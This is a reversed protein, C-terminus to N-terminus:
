FSPTLISETGNSGTNNVKNFTNSSVKTMCIGSGPSIVAMANSEVFLRRQKHLRLSMTCDQVIELSGRVPLHIGMLMKLLLNGLGDRKGGEIVALVAIDNHKTEM